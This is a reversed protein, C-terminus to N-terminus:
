PANLRLRLGGRSGIAARLTLSAGLSLTPSPPRHHVREAPDQGGGTQYHVVACVAASLCLSFAATAALLWGTSVVTRAKIWEARWAAAFRPWYFGGAKRRAVTSLGVLEIVENVRRSTIGQSRAPWLLHNWASRGPEVAGADLLAGVHRPPRCLSRYPHGVVLAEGADPTDLGLIVRLTTSKGVDNRIRDPRILPFRFITSGAPPHSHQSRM